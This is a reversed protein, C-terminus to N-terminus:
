RLLTRYFRCDQGGPIPDSYRGTGNTLTMDALTHWNLFNTTYEIRCPQNPVGAITLNMNTGARDVNMGPELAFRYVTGFGGTGGSWTTGYFVGNSGGALTSWPHSGDAGARNFHHVVAYDAGNTSMQYIMGGNTNGGWSTTGYLKGDCGLVPAAWSQSGDPKNTFCHLLAFGGGNPNMRFVTGYKGPGGSYTTGYLVGDPGQTLGARMWGGDASFNMARLVAYSSNNMGLRYITGNLTDGGGSTTGYLLGDRGEMVSSYPLEGDVFNNTFSHLVAYGSGDPNIKFVSGKNTVGGYLTTGYLVGDSGQILAAYPNAGDPKNTFSYLVAYSGGNTDLRFVCGHNSMGGYYTTGYLLGDIGQVLASFPTAGDPANTFSHLIRFGTGDGGLKYITGAASTGGGWTTGYLAGDSGTIVGGYCSAGDTPGAAFHHLVTKDPMVTQASLSSSIMPIAAAM